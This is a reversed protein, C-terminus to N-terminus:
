CQAFVHWGEPIPSALWIDPVNILDGYVSCNFLGVCFYFKSWTSAKSIYNPTNVACVTVCLCCRLIFKKIYVPLMRMHHALTLIPSVPLGMAYIHKLQFQFHNKTFSLCLLTCIHDPSVQTRNSLTTRSSDEGRQPLHNQLQSAPSCPPSM